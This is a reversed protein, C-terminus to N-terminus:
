EDFQWIRFPEPRWVPDIPGGRELVVRGRGPPLASALPIQDTGGYMPERGGGTIVYGATVRALVAAGPPGSPIPQVDWRALAKPVLTQCRWRLVEDLYIRGAPATEVFRCAERGDAYAVHPISATRASEVAATAALLGAAIAAARPVRVRLAALYGTVLLVIPYVFVHAHRVNRFGTVWYGAVHQINLEMGLFVVVLWWWLTPETELGLPWALLVLLVLAHPYLANVLVGLHMPAFLLQPFYLLDRRTPQRQMATAADLIGQSRLEANMPGLFSGTLAYSTVAGVAFLGGATWVLWRIGDLRRRNQLAVAAVVPVLLVGTVKAYSAVVMAVGAIAWLRRRAVPDDYRIARLVCYMTVAMFFSSAFDNTMLTAWAVDLPHVAVLLAAVVAAWRGFLLLATAYVLGIGLLSYILYPLVMTAESMGLLRVVIATPLWWAFRYAQNDPFVTGLDLLYRTEFWFESDDALGFGGFWRLRIAAGLVILGAALAVDLLRDRCGARNSATPM